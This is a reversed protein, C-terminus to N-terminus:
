RGTLLTHMHVVPAPMARTMQTLVESLFAENVTMHWERLMYSVNYLKFREYAMNDGAWM